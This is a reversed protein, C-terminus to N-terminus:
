RLPSASSLLCVRAVLRGHVMDYSPAHKFVASLCQVLSVRGIWGCHGSAEWSGQFVQLFSQNCEYAVADTCVYMCQM